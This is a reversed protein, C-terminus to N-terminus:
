VEDAGDLGMRRYLVPLEQDARRRSFFYANGRTTPLGVSDIRAMQNLRQMIRDRGSTQALVARTYADQEAIWERTEPSDQDELWRYPDTIEVGHLTEVVNEQRALRPRLMGAQGVEQEPKAEATM